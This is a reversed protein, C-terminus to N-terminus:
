LSDRRANLLMDDSKSHMMEIVSDPRKYGRTFDNDDGFLRHLLNEVM